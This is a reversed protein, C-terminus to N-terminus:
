VCVCECVCVCVCVCVCSFIFLSSGFIVFAPLSTPFIFAQMSRTSIYILVAMHFVSILNRLFNFIFNSCSGAIRNRFMFGFSIFDPHSLSMQV